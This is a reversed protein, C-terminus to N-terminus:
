ILKRAALENKLYAYYIPAAVIGPMGFAAEMFVMAILIEWARAKIRSGIIKANIFYELQHIFMLYLLAIVAAYLSVTLAVLFIITNSMVNGVIPLLGLVFTLVIIIKTFPIPGTIFPMIFLLFIATLFTNFASIKIQSFVVDAFARSLHFLRESLNRSLPAKSFDKYDSSIAVIGGIVMGIIIHIMTVGM